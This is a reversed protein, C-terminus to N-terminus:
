AFVNLLSGITGSSLTLVNSSMNDVKGSVSLASITSDKNRYSPTNTNTLTASVSPKAAYTTKIRQELESIKNSLESIKAKGEPTTHSPCSVWDALQIKCKDLQTELNATSLGAGMPNPYTSLGIASSM